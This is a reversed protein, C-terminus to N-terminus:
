LSIERDETTSDVHDYYWKLVLRATSVVHSGIAHKFGFNTEGYHMVSSQISALKRLEFLLKTSMELAGAPQEFVQRFDRSEAMYAVLGSKPAMPPQPDMEGHNDNTTNTSHHHNDMTITVADVYAELLVEDILTLGDRVVANPEANCRTMLCRLQTNWLRPLPLMSAISEVLPSPLSLARTLVEIYEKKRKVLRAPVRARHTTYLLSLKVLVLSREARKAQRMLRLQTEVTLLDLINVYGRRMATDYATKQRDDQKFIDAGAAVLVRM